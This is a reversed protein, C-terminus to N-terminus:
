LYNKLDSVFNVLKLNSTKLDKVLSALSVTQLSEQCRKVRTVPPRPRKNLIPTDLSSGPNRRCKFWDEIVSQNGLDQLKLGKLSDPVAFSTESGEALRAKKSKKVRPTKTVHESEGGFIKEIEADVQRKRSTPTKMSSEPTKANTIKTSAIAFYDKVSKRKSESTPEDASEIDVTEITKSTLKSASSDQDVITAIPNSEFLSPKEVALPQSGYSTPKSIFAKEREQIAPLDQDFCDTEVFSCIEEAKDQNLHGILDTIDRSGSTFESTEQSDLENKSVLGEIKIKSQSNRKFLRM